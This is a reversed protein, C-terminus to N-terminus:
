PSVPRVILVIDGERAWDYLWKADAPSMNVCGHSVPSGFDDHWYAGHFGLSGYYTMFYPVGQLYYV